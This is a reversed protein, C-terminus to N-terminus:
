HMCLAAAFYSTLPNTMGLHDKSVGRCKRLYLHAGCALAPAAGPTCTFLRGEALFSQIWRCHLLGLHLCM